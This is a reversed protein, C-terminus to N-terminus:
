QEGKHQLLENDIRNRSDDGAKFGARVLEAEIRSVGEVLAQYCNGRRLHPTLRAIVAELQGEPLQKVVGTDPLIVVQHEFIGILLLIAQRRDTQFLQHELFLGQAYQRTEAEARHRDLFLRAFAPWFPTLMAAAAGTGLIWAPHILTAWGSPWQPQSLMLVTAALASLASGMAFAKWPIEPYTDCKGVVAALFEVGTRMELNRGLQQIQESQSGTLYM